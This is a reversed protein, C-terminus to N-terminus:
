PSRLMGLLRKAESSSPDLALARAAEPRAAEVEKSQLYADAVAHAEATEASWLSIKLADVAGRM